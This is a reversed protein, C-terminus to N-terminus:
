KIVKRLEKLSDMSSSIYVLTNIKVKDYLELIEINKMRICGHSAPRGLFGEESTGHIYIYREYSDVGEGKNKGEELGELYLIRTTVDDTMSKTQDTYITAIEGHFVRGEMRGNLPTDDGIKEKIRHLGLPTKQSGSQNGIGYRSSSIIYTGIIKDAKIHHMKQDSLSVYLIEDFSSNSEVNKLLTMKKIKM